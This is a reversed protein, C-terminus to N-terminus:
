WWRGNGTATVGCSEYTRMHYMGRQYLSINQEPEMCIFLKDEASTVAGEGEEVEKSAEDRQARCARFTEFEHLRSADEELPM